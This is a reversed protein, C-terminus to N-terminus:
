KSVVVDIVTVGDDPARFRVVVGPGDEVDRDRSWGLYGGKLGAVDNKAEIEEQSLDFVKRNEFTPLPPFEESSIGMIKFLSGGSTIKVQNKKSTELFVENVPLEKVITALKRVPLTISGTDSVEAKIRCRIGLDLNTTTLSIHGEEAEILVNSLIPMTSRSAVVNLVQQLGNSFHDQNIKFKM